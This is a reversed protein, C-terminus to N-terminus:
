KEAVVSAHKSAILMPIAHKLVGGWFLGPAWKLVKCLLICEM